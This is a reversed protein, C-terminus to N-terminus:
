TNTLNSNLNSGPCLASCGYMGTRSCEPSVWMCTVRSSSTHCSGNVSVGEVFDCAMNRCRARIPKSQMNQPSFYMSTDTPSERHPQPVIAVQQDAVGNIRLQEREYRTKTMYSDDPSTTVATTSRKRFTRFQVTHNQGIVRLNLNWKWVQSAKGGIEFSPKQHTATMKKKLKLMM